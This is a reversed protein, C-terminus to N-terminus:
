NVLLPSRSASLPFVFCFSISSVLPYISSLALSVRYSLYFLSYSFYIIPVSIPLFCNLFLCVFSYVSFLLSLTFGLPHYFSSLSVLYIFLYFLSTPSQDWHQHCQTILTLMVFIFQLSNNSSASFNYTIETQKSTTWRSLAEPLHFTLLPTNWRRKKWVIWSNLIIHPLYIFYFFIYFSRLSLIYKEIDHITSVQVLSTCKSATMGSALQICLSGEMYMICIRHARSHTHTHKYIHDYRLIRM